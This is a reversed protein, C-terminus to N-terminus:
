AKEKRKIRSIFYFVILLIILFGIIMDFVFNSNLINAAESVLKIAILFIYLAPFIVTYLIYTFGSLVPYNNNYSKGERSFIEGLANSLSEELKHLYDYQREIAICIQYYRLTIYLFIVWLASVVTPFLSSIDAGTQKEIINSIASVSEYPHIMLLLLLFVIAGNIIFYTSRLKEKSKINEYTDKYHDYLIELNANM